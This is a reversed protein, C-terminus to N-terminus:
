PEREGKSGSRRSLSEAVADFAPMATRLSGLEAPSLLRISRALAADSASRIEAHLERGASTASLLAARADLPDAAREILGEAQLKSAVRSVMTLNLGEVESLESLRMRGRRVVIALVMFQTPTLVTGARTRRLRRAVREVLASLEAALEDLDVAAPKEPAVRRYYNSVPL